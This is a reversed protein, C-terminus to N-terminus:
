VGDKIQAGTQSAFMKEAIVGYDKESIEFLGKRFAMGWNKKNKIFDLKGILPRIDVPRIIPEMTFEM